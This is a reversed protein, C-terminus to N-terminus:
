TDTKNKRFNNIEKMLEEKTTEGKYKISLHGCMRRLEDKKLLELNKSKQDQVWIDLKYKNTIIEILVEKDQKNAQNYLKVFWDSTIIYYINRSECLNNHAEKIIDDIM